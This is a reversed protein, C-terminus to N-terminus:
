FERAYCNNDINNKPRIFNFIPQSIRIKMYSNIDDGVILAAVKM